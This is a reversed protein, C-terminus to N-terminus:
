GHHNGRLSPWDLALVFSGDDQFRDIIRTGLFSRLGPRHQGSGTYDELPLNSLLITPKRAGYRGNIVEFFATMEADNGVTAGVEDVVLLDPAILDDLAERETRGRRGWTDRMHRVAGYASIFLATAHEARIIHNAVSLALGTKGTGVGGTLIAGLGRKRVECWRNAYSRMASLVRRVRQAVEVDAIREMPFGDFSYDRFREPIAAAGLRRELEAQKRQQAQARTEEDSRRLDEELQKAVAEDACDPCIWSDPRPTGGPARWLEKARNHNLCHPRTGLAREVQTLPTTQESSTPSNM